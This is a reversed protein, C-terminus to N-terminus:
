GLVANSRSGQGGAADLAPVCKNVNQGGPGGSRSFSVEGVHRPITTSNFKSLWERAVALEDSSVDAGRSAFSRWLARFTANSRSFRSPLLLRLM